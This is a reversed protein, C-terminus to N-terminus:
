GPIYCVWKRRQHMEHLFNFDLAYILVDFTTYDSASMRELEAIFDAPSTTLSKDNPKWLDFTAQREWVSISANIINRPRTFLGNVVVKNWYRKCLYIMDNGAAPGALTLHM